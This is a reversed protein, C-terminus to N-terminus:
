KLSWIRVLRYYKILLLLSKQLFNYGSPFRRLYKPLQQFPRFKIGHWSLRQNGNIFITGDYGQFMYTIHSKETRLANISNDEIEFLLLYENLIFFANFETTAILEYGKNNALNVLSSISSGQNIKPDLKQIFEVDNHITPNYEIVVLIPTYVNIKSWVHYDNGDIIM